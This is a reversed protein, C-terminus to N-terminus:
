RVRFSGRMDDAHPDCVYTYTKGRVLRVGKWVKKGTFAIGTSRGGLRFNHDTSRDNVVINYTGAKLSRVAAGSATKLSVTDEPGVTAYLTPTAASGLSPVVLMAVAVLSAAALKFSNRMSFYGREYM